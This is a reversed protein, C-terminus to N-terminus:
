VHTLQSPNLTSLPLLDPNLASSPASNLTLLGHSLSPDTNISSSPELALSHTCGCSSDENRPDPIPFFDKDCSSTSECDMFSHPNHTPSSCGSENASYLTIERRIEQGLDKNKLVFTITENVQGQLNLTSFVTYLGQTDESINTVTNNTVDDGSDDLWHVSPRPYGGQSTLLLEVDRPSAIFKLHPEPYYAALKLAFTKTESGLLTSVSCTYDGKDGLNTRELRLSANGRELESHYLSTRNAYHSSQRDLKDQGHYFSHIVELGRQWTIVSNDLDWAKGVPFSCDLVAHQGVIALQPESPVSIEFEVSYSAKIILLSVFCRQAVWSKWSMVSTVTSLWCHYLM